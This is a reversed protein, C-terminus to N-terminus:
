KQKNLSAFEIITNLGKKSIKIIGLHIEFKNNVLPVVEIAKMIAKIPLANFHLPLHVWIPLISGVPLSIEADFDLGDRSVNKTIFRKYSGEVPVEIDLAANLRVSNRRELGTYSESEIFFPFSKKGKNKVHYYSELASIIESFLGVLPRVSCGTIEEIAHIAKADSPDGMVVTIMNGAKDVPIVLYREIIDEPISRKVEGSIDYRSLPLYPIKFYECLCEALQNEEIHGYALLYQTLTGGYKDQYSMARQWVSKEILGKNQLMEGIKKDQARISALLHQPVKSPVVLSRMSEKRKSYEDDKVQKAKNAELIERQEEQKEKKIEPPTIQNARELIALKQRMKNLEEEATNKQKIAESLEQEKLIIEKNRQRVKEQLAKLESIDAM